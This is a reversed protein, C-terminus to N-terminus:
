KILKSLSLIFQMAQENAQDSFIRCELPANIQRTRTAFISKRARKGMRYIEAKAMNGTKDIEFNLRGRMLRFQKPLDQLLM